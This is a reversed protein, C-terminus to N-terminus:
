LLLDDSSILSAIRKVPSMLSSKKLNNLRKSGELGFGLQRLVVATFLELEDNHAGASVAERQLIHLATEHKNQQLFSLAWGIYVGPEKPSMFRLASFILEACIPEGWDLAAYGIEALAHIEERNLAKDTM